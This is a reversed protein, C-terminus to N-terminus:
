NGTKPVLRSLSSREILRGWGQGRRPSSRSRRAGSLPTPLHCTPPRSTGAALRCLSLCPSLGAGSTVWFSIEPSWAWVGKNARWPARWAFPLRSSRSSLPARAEAARRPRKQPEPLSRPPRRPPRGLGRAGPRAPPVGVGPRFRPLGSPASSVEGLSVGRRASGCDLSRASVLGEPAGRPETRAALLITRIPHAGYSGVM